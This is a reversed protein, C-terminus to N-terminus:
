GGTQRAVSTKQEPDARDVIEKLGCASRAVVRNRGLMQKKPNQDPIHSSPVTSRPYINDPDGAGLLHVHHADGKRKSKNESTQDTTILHSCAKVRTKERQFSCCGIHVGAVDWVHTPIM